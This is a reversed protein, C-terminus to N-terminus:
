QHIFLKGVPPNIGDAFTLFIASMGPMVLDFTGSPPHYM